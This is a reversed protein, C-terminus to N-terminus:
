VSAAPMATTMFRYSNSAVYRPDEKCLAMFALHGGKTRGVLCGASARGIDSKPLDYGWHQNIGFLGSFKEDGQREFDENLDRFVSIPATQVLAESRFLM